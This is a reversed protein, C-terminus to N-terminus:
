AFSGGSGKDDNSDKRYKKVEEELEKIKEKLEIMKLERGTTLKHFKELEDVRDQLEKTREEVKDELSKNLEELERTRDQVKKELSKKVEQLGAESEKLRDTQDKMRNYNGKLDGALKNLTRALTGIEDQNSVDIRHDLNGKGMIEAGKSVNRLPDLVLLKIIWFSAIIDGTLLLIGLIWILRVQTALFEDYMEDSLYLKVEGLVREPQDLPDFIVPATFVNGCKECTSPDDRRKDEVLDSVYNAVKRENHYIEIGLIQTDQEGIYNVSLDLAPYNHSLLNEISFDALAVTMSNGYVDLQEKIIDGTQQIQLALAIALFLLVELGVAGLLKVKLSLKKKPLKM